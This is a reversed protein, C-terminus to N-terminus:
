VVWSPFFLLMVDPYIILLLVALAIFPAFAPMNRYVMIEMVKAKKLLSIKEETLIGAGGLLRKEKEKLFEKAIVEDKELSNIKIKKLFYNKKIEKDFAIFILGFAFAIMLVLYNILNSAQWIMLFGFYIALAAFVIIIITIKIVNEKLKIKKDIFIRIAYYGSLIIIALLSSILVVPMIFPMGKFEPMLLALGLFLKVDGGGLRGTFYFLLGFILIIASQILAIQISSTLYSTALGIIIMPYTIYNPIVRKKFDFYAAALCGFILIFLTMQELM